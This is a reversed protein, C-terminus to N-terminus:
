SEGGGRAPRWPLGKLRERLVKARQGIDVNAFVQERQKQLSKDPQLLQLIPLLLCFAVAVVVVVVVVVVILLPSSM